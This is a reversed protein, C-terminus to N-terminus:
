NCPTYIFTPVGPMANTLVQAGTHICHHQPANAAINLHYIRCNKTNGSGLSPTGAPLPTFFAECSPQDLFQRLSCRSSNTALPFPCTAFGYPFYPQEMTDKCIRLNRECFDTVNPTPNGAVIQALAFPALNVVQDAAQFKCKPDVWGRLAQVSNHLKYPNTGSVHPNYIDWSVHGYLGRGVM